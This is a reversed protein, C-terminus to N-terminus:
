LSKYWLSRCCLKCCFKCHSRQLTWCFCGVPLWIFLLLARTETGTQLSKTKSSTKLQGWITFPTEFSFRQWFKAGPCIIFRPSAAPHLGHSPYHVAQARMTQNRCSFSKVPGNGSWSSLVFQEKTRGAFSQPPKECHIGISKEPWTM